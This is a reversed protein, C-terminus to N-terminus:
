HISMHSAVVWAIKQGDVQRFAGDLREPDREDSGGHGENGGASSDSAEGDGSSQRTSM